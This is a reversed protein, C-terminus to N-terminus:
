CCSCCKQSNVSKYARPQESSEKTKVRPSRGSLTLLPATPLAPEAGRPWLKPRRQPTPRRNAAAFGGEGRRFWGRGGGCSCLFFASEQM